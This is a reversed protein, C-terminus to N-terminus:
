RLSVRGTEKNPDTIDCSTVFAKSLAYLSENIYLLREVANEEGGWYYSSGYKKYEEDSIHTIKGKLTFGDKLNLNYVYAGQFEFQGYELSDNKINGTKSSEPVTMVTVPFALLEREKSFLLARHNSLLESDTGRDGIETKFLEKPHEVDTVDFLAIKMGQYYAMTGGYGYDYEVTEKGFGIIHNEDYPHLYDSYGPIKLSGLVKPAKPDSLDIVFLPDVTKFTVVYAKAGMFRVSYIYEEPALGELRGVTKLGGDLVYLNNQSSYYGKNYYYGSSNTAIRLYGGYEDMSFQNLVTGDVEGKCDYVVDGKDLKFKHIATTQSDDDWYGGSVYRKYVQSAVYLANQSVYVNEGYDLMVEVSLPKEANRTDIGAVILYNSTVCGPFYYTKSYDVNRFQGGTTVSDCYAAAPLGSEAGERSISDDSYYKYSYPSYSYMSRNTVIYLAAGIKRSTKYGGEIASDRVLKPSSRDKMDYVLARTTEIGSYGYYYPDYDEVAVIERAAGGDAPVSETKVTPKPAERERYSSGIVVLTDGDIYMEFPSFSGKVEESFDVKGLLKMGSPPYADIINIRQGNVQYIYKGDTKVVDSEDVGEVQINTTSFENDSAAGAEDSDNAIQEEERATRSEKLEPAPAFAPSEIDAYASGDTGNYDRTFAPATTAAATAAAEEARGMGGASGYGGFLMDAAEWVVDGLSRTYQAKYMDIYYDGRYYSINADLMLNNLKEASGVPTAGTLSVRLSSLQRADRAADFPSPGDSIVLLGDYYSVTKGLAELVKRLPIFFYMADSGGVAVAYESPELTLLIDAGKKLRFTGRDENYFSTLGFYDEVYKSPVFTKNEYLYATVGPMEPVLDALKGDNIVLSSDLTFITLGDLGVTEVSRSPNASDVAAGGSGAAGFVLTAAIILALATKGRRIAARRPKKSDIWSSSMNIM